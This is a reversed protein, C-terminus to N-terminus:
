ASESLFLFHCGYAAAVAAAYAFSNSEQIGPCDTIFMDGISSPRYYKLILTGDFM